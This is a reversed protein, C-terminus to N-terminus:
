QRSLRLAEFADEREWYVRFSVVAGDRLTWVHATPQSRVEAGSGKGRGHERTLVLVREGLDRIEEPTVSFDEFSQSVRAAYARVGDHGHHPEALDPFASPGRWEVNPDMHALIGDLDGDNIAEYIERVVDVNARTLV